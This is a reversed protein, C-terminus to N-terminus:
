CGSFVRVWQFSAGLSSEYKSFVPLWQLSAGSFVRVWPLRVWQFSAAASPQFNAGVSSESGSFVCRSFVLVWYLGIDSISKFLHRLSM